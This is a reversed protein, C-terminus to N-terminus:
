WKFSVMNSKNGLGLRIHLEPHSGWDRAEFYQMKSVWRGDQGDAKM